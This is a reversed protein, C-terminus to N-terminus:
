LVAFASFSAMLEGVKRWTEALFAVHTRCSHSM